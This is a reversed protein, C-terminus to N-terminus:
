FGEWVCAADEIRYTEFYQTVDPARQGFPLNQDSFSVVVREAKIDHYSLYPVAVATCLHEMDALSTTQDAMQAMEPAVFRFRAWLAGPADDLLVESLTVPQGSPVPLSAQAEDSATAGGDAGEAGESAAHAQSLPSACVLALLLVCQLRAMFLGVGARRLARTTVPAPKAGGFTGFVSGLVSRPTAATGHGSSQALVSKVVRLHIFARVLNGCGRGWDSQAGGAPAAPAAGLARATSPRSSGSCAVSEAETDFVTLNKHLLLACRGNQACVAFKRDGDPAIGAFASSNQRLHGATKRLGTIKRLISTM